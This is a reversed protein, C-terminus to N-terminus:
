EISMDFETYFDMEDYVLYNMGDEIKIGLTVSTTFAVNSDSTGFSIRPNKM